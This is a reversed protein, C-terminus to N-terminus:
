LTNTIARTISKSVDAAVDDGMSAEFIREPITKFIVGVEFPIPLRMVEDIGLSTLPILFYDDKVEPRADKYEDEDSVLMWYMYTTALLLSGRFVATKVVQTKQMEKNAGYRGTFARYLVDVGQMRANLFPIAATLSRM